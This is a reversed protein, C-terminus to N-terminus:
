PNSFSTTSTSMVKYNTVLYLESTTASLYPFLGDGLGKLYGVRRILKASCNKLFEEQVCCFICLFQFVYVKDVSNPLGFLFNTRVRVCAHVCVHM